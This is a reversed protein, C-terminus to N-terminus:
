SIILKNDRLERRLEAVIVIRAEEEDALEIIVWADIVTQVGTTFSYVYYCENSSAYQVIRGIEFLGLSSKFRIIDGVKFISEYM